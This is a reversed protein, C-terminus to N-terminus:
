HKNWDDSNPVTDDLPRTRFAAAQTLSAASISVSIPSHCHEMIKRKELVVCMRRLTFTFTIKHAEFEAIM